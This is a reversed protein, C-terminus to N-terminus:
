NGSIRNVIGKCVSVIVDGYTGIVYGVFGAIASVATAFRKKAM